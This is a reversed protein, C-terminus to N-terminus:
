PAEWLIRVETRVQPADKAVSKHGNREEEEKLAGNSSKKVSLGNGKKWIEHEGSLSNQFASVITSGLSILRSDENTGGQVPMKSNGDAARQVEVNKTPEDDTPTGTTHLKLFGLSGQKGIINNDVETGGLAEVQLPVGQASCRGPLSADMEGEGDVVPNIKGSQECKLGSPSPTWLM